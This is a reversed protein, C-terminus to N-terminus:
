KRLSKKKNFLSALISIILIIVVLIIGITNSDPTAEENTIINETSFDVSSLEEDSWLGIKNERAKQEALELIDAYKYNVGLMFTRGLGNLMIEEQLLEDDVWIWALLRNYKDKTPTKEEFELKIIEANKLNEKAFNSAEKGYNQIEKEPHVTEPTDIGLFRVTVIENNLVFKATDGDVISSLTVMTIYTGPENKHKNQTINFNEGYYVSPM